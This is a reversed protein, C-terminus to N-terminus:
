VKMDIRHEPSPTTEIESSPAEPVPEKPEEQSEEEHEYSDENSQKEKEDHIKTHEDKQTEEVQERKDDIARKLEVAFQRQDLEPGQQLSRFVREVAQTKSLTDQLDVARTMVVVEKGV